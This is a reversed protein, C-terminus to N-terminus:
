ISYYGEYKGDIFNLYYYSYRSEEDIYTIEWLPVGKEAGLKVKEIRKVNRKRDNLLIQIAEQETIGESKRKVLVKQKKNNPVWVFWSTGNEDKGEIVHYATMGHYYDTSAINILNAKKRALEEAQIIGKDKSRVATNYVNVVTVMVGLFICFIIFIWKKMTDSREIYRLYPKTKKKKTWHLGM